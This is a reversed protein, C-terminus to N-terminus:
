RRRRDRSSSRRYDDRPDRGYGSRSYRDRSRSRHRDRRSYRDRSRSRRTERGMYQGPTPDHARKTISFDVRLERGDITKGNIKERAEVADEKEVYTAFGFGRSRGTKQDYVIVAKKLEGYKSMFSEFTREDTSTSMGFVGLVNSTPPEYRSGVHKREQRVPSSSRSRRRRDRSRSREYSRERKPSRSRSRSSM